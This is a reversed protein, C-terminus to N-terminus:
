KFQKRVKLSTFAIVIFLYVMAFVIPYWFANKCCCSNKFNPGFMSYLAKLNLFLKLLAGLIVIKRAWDKLRLIGIGAMISLLLLLDTIWYQVAAASLGKHPFGLYSLFLTRRILYYLSAAILTWGFMKVAAVSNKGEM